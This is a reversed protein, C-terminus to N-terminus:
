LLYYMTFICSNDEAIVLRLLFSVLLDDLDEFDKKKWPAFKYKESSLRMLLVYTDFWLDTFVLSLEGMIKIKAAISLSRARVCGNSYYDLMPLLILVLIEPFIFWVVQDINNPIRSYSDGNDLVYYGLYINPPCVGERCGVFSM